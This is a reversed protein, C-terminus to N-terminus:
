SWSLAEIGRKRLARKLAEAAHTLATHTESPAPPPPPAPLAAPAAPVHAALAQAMAQTLESKLTTLQAQVDCKLQAINDPSAAPRPVAGYRVQIANTLRLKDRVVGTQEIMIYGNPQDFSSNTGVPLVWPFSLLRAAEDLGVEGHLVASGCLTASKLRQGCIMELVLVAQPEDVREGMSCLLQRGSSRVNGDGDHPEWPDNDRAALEADTASEFLQNTTEILSSRTIGGHGMRRLRWTGPCIAMLQAFPVPTKDGFPKAVRQRDRSRAMESAEHLEFAVGAAAAKAIEDDPVCADEADIGHELLAATLPAVVQRRALKTADAWRTTKYDRAQSFAGNMQEDTARNLCEFEDEGRDFVALFDDVRLREDDPAIPSPGRTNEGAVGHLHHHLATMCTRELMELEQDSEPSRLRLMSVLGPRQLHYDGTLLFGPLAAMGGGRMYTGMSARLQALRGATCADGHLAEEFPTPEREADLLDAELQALPASFVHAVLTTRGEVELTYLLASEVLEESCQMLAAGLLTRQHRRKGFLDFKGPKYGADAHPSARTRGYLWNANPQGSAHLLVPPLSEMWFFSEDKLMAARRVVAHADSASRLALPWESTDRLHEALPAALDKVSPASPAPM